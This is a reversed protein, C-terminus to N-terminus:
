YQQPTESSSERSQLEKLAQETKGEFQPSGSGEQGGSRERTTQTQGSGKEGIGAPQQAIGPNGHRESTNPTIMTGSHPDRRMNDTAKASDTAAGSVGASIGPVGAGLGEGGQALVPVAVAAWFVGAVILTLVRGMSMKM